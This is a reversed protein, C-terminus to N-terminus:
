LGQWFSVKLLMLNFMGTDPPPQSSQGLQKMEIELKQMLPYQHQMLKMIKKIFGVYDRPFEKPAVLTKFFEQAQRQQENRSVCDKFWFRLQRSEKTHMSSTTNVLYVCFELYLHPPVSDHEEGAANKNIVIGAHAGGAVHVNQQKDIKDLHRREVIITNSNATRKGPTMIIQDTLFQYFTFLPLYILLSKHIFKGHEQNKHSHMKLKLKYSEYTPIWGSSSVASLYINFFDSVGCPVCM